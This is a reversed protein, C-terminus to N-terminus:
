GEIIIGEIYDLFKLSIDNEEAMGSHVFIRYNFEVPNNSEIVCSYNNFFLPNPAFLGYDRVHWGCPYLLNLPNDFITFGAPRYNEIKGSYDVWHAKRGWCFQETKAGYSNTIIGNEKGEMQKHVRLGLPGAEKTPGMIVKKGEDDLFFKIRVDLYRNEPPTSYTTIQREDKVFIDSKRGKPFNQISASPLYLWENVTTIHASFMGEFIEKILVQKCTRYNDEENWFDVCNFNGYAFFIGRHHIHDKASPNLMVQGDPGYLPYIYPKLSLNWNYSFFERGYILFTSKNSEVNIKISYESERSPTPLKQREEKTGNADKEIIGKNQSLSSERIEIEGEYEGKPLDDILLWGNEFLFEKNRIRIIGNIENVNFAKLRSKEKFVMKAVSNKRQWFNKLKVKM